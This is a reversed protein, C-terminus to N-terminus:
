LEFDFMPESRLLGLGLEKHPILKVEYYGLVHHPEPKGRSAGTIGMAIMVVCNGKTAKCQQKWNKRKQEHESTSKPFEGFLHLDDNGMVVLGLECSEGLFSEAPNFCIGQIGKFSEIQKIIELAKPRSTQILLASLGNGKEPVSTNSLYRNPVVERLHTVISWPIQSFRFETNDPWLDDYILPEDDDEDGQNPSFSHLEEALDPLTKVLVKITELKGETESPIQFPYTGKLATFKDDRLKSSHQSLFQNLAEIAVTLAIAEEDYLFPRGGELPHLAGFVPHVNEQNKPWGQSRLIRLESESLSESSEFLNFLCDQHLFTEELDDEEGELLLRERFRVLSERNRYFIVGQELGLRGMAIAYLSGLDWRNLQIEIVEHDWLYDWPAKQWLRDSQQYLAAAQAAPVTPPSTNAHQLINEFIEEVLPLSEVHEVTIELEQLVGRLYFQLQRDCVLIKQPLGPQAPSQPREIAQLLARVFAEQGVSGDVVDMARVMGMSGDVWIICQPQDEEILSGMHIINSDSQYERSRPLARRDGEWVANTQKLLKLRRLTSGNLTTM